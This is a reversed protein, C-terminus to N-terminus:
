RLGNRQQCAICPWAVDAFEFVHDLSGNGQCGVGDDSRFIQWFGDPCCGYLLLCPSSAPVGQVIHFLIINKTHQLGLMLVITLRGSSKADVALCEKAFEALVALTSGGKNTLRNRRSVVQGQFDSARLGGPMGASRKGGRHCITGMFAGYERHLGIWM